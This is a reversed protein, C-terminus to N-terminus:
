PPLRSGLSSSMVKLRVLEAALEPLRDIQGEASRFEFQINQGEIYGLDRLGQRFEQWFEGSKYQWYGARRHDAGEAAACAVHAAVGRDHQRAHNHVRTTQHPHDRSGGVPTMGMGPLVIDRKLAPAFSIKKRQSFRSSGRRDRTEPHSSSM